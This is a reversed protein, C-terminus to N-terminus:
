DVFMGHLGVLRIGGRGGVGELWGDMRLGLTKRVLFSLHTVRSGRSNLWLTEKDCGARWVDVASHELAEVISLCLLM